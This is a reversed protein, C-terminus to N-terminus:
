YVQEQFGKGECYQCIGSGECSPCRGTGGCSSCDVYDGFSYIKGSGYCGLCCGQGHCVGCHGGDCICNYRAITPEPVADTSEYEEEAEYQQDSSNSSQRISSSSNGSEIASNDAGNNGVYGSVAKADLSNDGWQKEKPKSCSSLMLLILFCMSTLSVGIISRSM